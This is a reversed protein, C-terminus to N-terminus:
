PLPYRLGLARQTGDNALDISCAEAFSARTLNLFRDRLPVALAECACQPCALRSRLRQADDIVEVKTLDWRQEERRVSPMVCTVTKTILRVSLLPKLSGEALDGRHTVLDSM